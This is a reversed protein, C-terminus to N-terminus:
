GGKPGPPSKPLMSYMNETMKKIASWGEPDFVGGVIQDAKKLIQALSDSKLFKVQKTIGAEEKTKQNFRRVRLLGRRPELYLQFVCPARGIRIDIFEQPPLPETNAENDGM